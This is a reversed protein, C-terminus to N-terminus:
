LYRGGGRADPPSAPYWLILGHFEPFAGRHLKRVHDAAIELGLFTM